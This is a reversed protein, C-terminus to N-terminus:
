AVGPKKQTAGGPMSWPNRQVKTATFDCRVVAKADNDFYGPCHYVGDDFHLRGAHCTPCLPLGGRMEGDVCRQLLQDKTGSLMQENARLVEKLETVSMASYKDRVASKRGSSSGGGTLLFRWDGPHPHHLAQEAAAHKGAVGRAAIEEPHAKNHKPPAESPGRASERGARRAGRGAQETAGSAALAAKVQRKEAASLLGMGKLHDLHMGVPAKFCRLHRWVTGTHGGARQTM